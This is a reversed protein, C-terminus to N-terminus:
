VSLEDDPGGYNHEIAEEKTCGSVVDDDFKCWKGNRKPYPYVVHHEGHNDGSHVLVAHLIYNIPDKPDTKQLFEDLPLHSNLGIMSRSIKTWRLTICLGWCNYIYCKKQKRYAMNGLTMNDGNLQEVAVYDVFSDFINKQGKISQHIDYYDEILGITWKKVSSIPCWQVM